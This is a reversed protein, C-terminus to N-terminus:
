LLRSSRLYPEEEFYETFTEFLADYFGWGMNQTELVVQRSREKIAALTATKKALKLADDFANEASTYFAEDIDGYANTFDVAKEVRFLLLDVVDFEFIAIKKFESILKRVEAAKPTGYGRKPFYQREIKAKYENLVASTDTGLDMEYYDKVAKIKEFLKLIEATLEAKTLEELHKKLTNKTIKSM